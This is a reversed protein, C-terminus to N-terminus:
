LVAYFFSNHFRANSIPACRDASAQQFLAQDARLAVMFANRDIDEETIMSSSVKSLPITRSVSELPARLELTSPIPLSIAM